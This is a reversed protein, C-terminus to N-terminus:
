SAWWNWRGPHRRPAFSLGYTLVDNQHNGVTPDSLIGVGLNGVIRISRVTKRSSSRFTSTRDHRPGLGSENSANPLKTAFRLGFAPRNATESLFRVKTARRGRGRRRPHQRRDGDGAVGTPSSPARYHQSHDYCAAMSRCNRRDLELGFSLGIM